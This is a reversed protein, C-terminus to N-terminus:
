LPASFRGRTREDTVLRCSLTCAALRVLSFRLDGEQRLVHWSVDMLRCSVSATLCLVWM